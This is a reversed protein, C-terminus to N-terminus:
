WLFFYSFYSPSYYGEKLFGKHRARFKERRKSDGHILHPYKNLGTKDHFNESNKDGFPVRVVRHPAAKQKLVANYMKNDLHSKEFKVFKYKQQSYYTM